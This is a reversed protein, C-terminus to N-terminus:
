ENQQSDLFGVRRFVNFPEAALNNAESNEAIVLPHHVAGQLFGAAINQEDTLECQERARLFSVTRGVAARGPRFDGHRKELSEGALQAFVQALRNLARATLTAIVPRLRLVHVLTGFM